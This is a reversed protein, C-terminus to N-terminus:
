LCRAKLEPRASKCRKFVRSMFGRSKRVEEYLRGVESEEIKRGYFRVEGLQAAQMSSGIRVSGIEGIEDRIRNMPIDTLWIGNFYIHMSSADFSVSILIPMGSHIIREAVGDESCLLDMGGHSLLKLRKSAVALTLDNDEGDVGILKLIVYDEAVDMVDFWSTITWCFHQGRSLPGSIVVENKCTGDPDDRDANILDYGGTAVTKVDACVIGCYLAFFMYLYFRCKNKCTMNDVSEQIKGCTNLSTEIDLCDTDGGFSDFSM